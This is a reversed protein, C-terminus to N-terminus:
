LMGSLRMCTSSMHCQFHSLLILHPVLFNIETGRFVRSVRYCGAASAAAILSPWKELQIEM